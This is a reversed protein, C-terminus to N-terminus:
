PSGRALSAVGRLRARREEDLRHEYAKKCAKKCFRLTFRRHVLMGLRGGCHACQKMPPTSARNESTLSAAIFFKAVGRWNTVSPLWYGAGVQRGCWRDLEDKIRKAARLAGAGPFDPAPPEPRRFDVLVVNNERAIVYRDTRGFTPM